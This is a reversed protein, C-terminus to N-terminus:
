VLVLVLGLSSRCFDWFQGLYLRFGTRLQDYFGTTFWDVLRKKFENRFRLHFHEWLSELQTRHLSKTKGKFQWHKEGKIWKESRRKAKVCWVKDYASHLSRVQEQVVAQHIRGPADELSGLSFELTSSNFTRGHSSHSTWTLRSRDIMQSAM